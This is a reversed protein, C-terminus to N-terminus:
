RLEFELAIVELQSLGDDPDGCGPLPNGKALGANLRGRVDSTSSGSGQLRELTFGRATFLTTHRSLDFGHVDRLFDGLGSAESGRRAVLPGTNSQKLAISLTVIEFVDLGFERTPGRLLLRNLAETIEHEPWQAIAQLGEVTFGQSQLLSIRLEATLELGSSDGLVVALFSSIDIPKPKSSSRQALEATESPQKIHRRGHFPVLGLLRLVSAESENDSDCGIRAEGPKYIWSPPLPMPFTQATLLRASSARSEKSRSEVRRSHRHHHETNLQRRERQLRSRSPSTNQFPRCVRPMRGAHGNGEQLMPTSNKHRGRSPMKRYGGNMDGDEEDSAFLLAPFHRRFQPGAWHDDDELIAVRWPKTCKVITDPAVRFIRAISPANWGHARM